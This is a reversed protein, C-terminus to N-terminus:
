AVQGAQHLNQKIQETQRLLTALDNPDLDLEQAQKLFKKIKRNKMQRKYQELGKDVYELGYRMVRYYLRAIKSALAKMAIKGDRRGKIRRYFEGLPSKSKAVSQASLRFVLGAEENGKKTKRRSSKGSRDRRPSLGLWSVFHKETKWATMDTGCYALLRLLTYDNIGTMTTPDAGGSIRLLLGHLNEIGPCHHRIQKAKSKVEVEPKALALHELQKQILGDCSTVMEQYFGWCELARNLTFLHEERYNGELSRLVAEKKTMVIRKDCLKLLSVPDREGALIAEVIRLGSVGTIQSIVKHIKLGMLDLAKHMRLIQSAGSRIHDERDRVYTRLIRIGVDPIFSGSFLGKMHLCRLWNCDDPDSKRGPLNRAMAGNVVVVEIGAAELEEYLAIWYVGTAEMAVTSVGYKQLHLVTEKRGPTDARFSNILPSGSEDLVSVFNFESGVDIGGADPHLDSLQKLNKAKQRLSPKRPPFVVM